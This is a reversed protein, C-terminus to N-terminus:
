MTWCFRIGEHMAVDVNLENKGGKKRGSKERGRRGKKIGNEKKERERKM